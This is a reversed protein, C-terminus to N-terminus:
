GVSKRDQAHTRGAEGGLGVAGAVGGLQAGAQQPREGERHAEATEDNQQLARYPQDGEPGYIGAGLDGAVGADVEIDSRFLTTYPFLTDSRTSRPPRRIM